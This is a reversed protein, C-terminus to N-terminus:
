PREVAVAGEPRRPDVVGLSGALQPVGAPGPQWLLEVSNASGMASAPALSHGRADLLALTDPSLGQEHSLRDPWLQSHVRPSAVATALNHGHVIRNLLV